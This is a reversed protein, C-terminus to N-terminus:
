QHAAVAKNFGQVDGTGYAVLIREWSRALPNSSGGRDAGILARALTEWDEGAGQAPPVLLAGSLFTIRDARQLHREVEGMRTELQGLGQRDAQAKEVLLQARQRFEQYGPADVLETPSYLPVDRKPLGIMGLMEGDDIWFVPVQDLRRRALGAHIAQATARRDPLRAHYAALGRVVNDLLWMVAPHSKRDKDRLVQRGSVIMLETRAFTDVPKFRGGDVVLLEKFRELEM